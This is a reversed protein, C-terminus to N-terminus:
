LPGPSGYPRNWDYECSTSGIRANTRQHESTPAVASVNERLLSVYAVNFGLLSGIGLGSIDEVKRRFVEAGHRIITL